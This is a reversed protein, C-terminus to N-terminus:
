AQRESDRRRKSRQLGLVRRMPLTLNLLSFWAPRLLYREVPGWSHKWNYRARGGTLKHTAEDLTYLHWKGGALRRNEMAEEGRLIGPFGGAHYFYDHNQHIAIIDRSADVVAANLRKAKWVLWNDWACRALTM